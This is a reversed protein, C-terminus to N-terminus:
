KYILANLMSKAKLMCEKYEEEGISDYTIASGVMISLYENTANYQIARIVVNFDFDQEPSIYGVSGSYLGRKTNEYFEILEMAKIKPAGTMSGMPFANIIATDIRNNLDLTASVTSIMQHVQSFSYIGFLENVEVSGIVATKALDNRVLDVIMLNEAKEKESLLLLDKNRNDIQLDLDRPATGKIPQSYIKTGQKSIFREPSACLLYKDSLRVFCSFPTPSVQMLREYVSKPCIRVQTSYLEICYNLEYIDGNKIHEKIAEVNKIYTNIDVDHKISFLDITDLEQKTKNNGLIEYILAHGILVKLSSDVVILNNPVFFFLRPWNLLDKNDSSLNEIDNKIDYGIYGLIWEGKHSSIFNGMNIIANEDNIHSHYKFGWGAIFSYRDLNFASNQANSDLIVCVESEAQSFWLIHQRITELEKLTLHM